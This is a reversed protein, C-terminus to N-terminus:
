RYIKNGVNFWGKEIIHPTVTTVGNISVFSAFGNVWKNPIGKKWVPGKKCLCGATGAYRSKVHPGATHTSHIQFDHIHGYWVKYPSYQLGYSQAHHTPYIHGHIFICDGVKYHNGYEAYKVYKVDIDLKDFVDRKFNFQGKYKVYKRALRTYREEHNGELFVFRCGRPRTDHLPKIVRELLLKDREYWAPNFSTKSFSEVGHLNAGDIVDGGLILIDPKFDAVYKEIGRRDISESKKRDLHSEHIDSLFVGKIIKGM